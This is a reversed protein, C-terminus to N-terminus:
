LQIQKIFHIRSDTLLPKREFGEILYGNNILLKIMRPFQNRSKVKLQSYGHQKAWLEQYELLSQAVGKNRALPSVGGFWSYFISKDIEYGIKFGLLQGSEEAIQILCQKGILRNTLSEVSEKQEFEHILQVLEVCEELTGIRCEISM